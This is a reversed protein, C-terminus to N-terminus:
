GLIIMSHSWILNWCLGGQKECMKEMLTVTSPDLKIFFNDVGSIVDYSSKLGGKTSPSGFAGKEITVAGLHLPPHVGKGPNRWKVRSIYRIISLTLGPPILYWKQLNQYSERPISGWDRLGNAFVRGVLGIPLVEKTSVTFM